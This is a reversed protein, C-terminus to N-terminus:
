FSKSKVSFCNQILQGYSVNCAQQQKKLTTQQEISATVEQAFEHANPSETENKKTTNAYWHILLHMENGNGNRHM